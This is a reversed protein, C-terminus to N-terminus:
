GFWFLVNLLGNEATVLCSQSHNQRDMQGDTVGIECHEEWLIMMVNDSNIVMSLLSASALPWPWLDFFLIVSPLVFKEVFQVTRSRLLLKFECSAIFHHVSSLTAYFLHGITKCHWKDFKLIVRSLFCFNQGSNFRESCYSWNSNVFPWCSACLKFFCDLNLTELSYSWNSNCIDVFHYM